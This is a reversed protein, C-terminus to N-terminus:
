GLAGHDRETAYRSDNVLEGRAPQNFADRIGLVSSSHDDLQCRGSHFELAVCSSHVEASDSFVETRMQALWLGIFQDRSKLAHQAAM